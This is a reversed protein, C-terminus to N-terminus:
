QSLSYISFPIFYFTNILVDQLTIDNLILVTPEGCFYHSIASLFYFCIFTLFLNNNSVKQKKIQDIVALLIFSIFIGIYYDNLTVSLFWFYLLVAITSDPTLLFLSSMYISGCFIHFLINFYNTHHEKFRMLEHEIISIM